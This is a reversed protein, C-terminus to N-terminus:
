RYHSRTFLATVRKSAAAHQSEPALIPIAAADLTPPVAWAISAAMVAAAVLSLRIGHSIM